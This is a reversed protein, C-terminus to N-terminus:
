HRRFDVRTTGVPLGFKTVLAKNQVTGDDHLTMTDYFRVLNKRNEPDLYVQYSFRATDGKVTVLTEGVVDERTGKYTNPGTKTFRWTKRDREGDAYVFDEVLTLTSGNWRGNLVVKFDRRLGTIASFRGDAVTRGAFYKELLFDASAPTAAAAPLLAAIAFAIARVYRM